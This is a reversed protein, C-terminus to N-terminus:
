KADLEYVPKISGKPIYFDYHEYFYDIEEGNPNLIWKQWFDPNSSHYEKSYVYHPDEDTYHITAYDVAVSRQVFNNEGVEEYWSYVPQQDISGSGLFFQGHIGGMNDAVNVMPVPEHQRVEKDAYVFCGIVLSLLFGIVAGWVLGCFTYFGRDEDCYWFVILGLLIACVLIFLM